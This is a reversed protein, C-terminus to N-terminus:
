SDALLEDKMVKGTANLPFSDRLVVSRPVKYNAMRERCWAIVEDPDPAAGTRPVIFARGVEGLREDPVGVVAAQIVDPHGLLTNEIEAPYANFGGVIFMDKIRGAIRLCGRGDMMGLDGTHLWGEADIAADTAEPDDFYGAMVSFGRVLVEGTEGTAAERDGDVVRVELDPM